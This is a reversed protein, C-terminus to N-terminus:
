APKKSVKKHAAALKGKFSDQSFPKVIYQDVGSKIADNVQDAQADATMLIFPIHKFKEEARVKKLLDIGAIHPMDWDSIILGIEMTQIKNWADQGDHAEIVDTFGLERFIKAVVKRMTVIDDAILVRTKTDFM